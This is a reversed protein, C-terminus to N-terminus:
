KTGQKTREKKRNRTTKGRNDNERRSTARLKQLIKSDIRPPKQRENKFTKQIYRNIYVRVCADLLSIKSGKPQSTKSKGGTFKLFIHNELILVM